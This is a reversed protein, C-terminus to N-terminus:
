IVIISRSNGEELKQNVTFCCVFQAQTRLPLFDMTKYRIKIKVTEDKLVDKLKLVATQMFLQTITNIHRKM